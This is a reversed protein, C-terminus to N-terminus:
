NIRIDCTATVRDKCYSVTDQTREELPWDVRHGSCLHRHSTPYPSGMETFRRCRYGPM